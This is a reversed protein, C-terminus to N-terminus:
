NVVTLHERRWQSIRALLRNLAREIIAKQPDKAKSANRRLRIARNVFHVLLDDDRNADRLARLEADPPVSVASSNDSTRAINM